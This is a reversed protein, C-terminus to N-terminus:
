TLLKQQQQQQQQQQQSQLYIFWPLKNSCQLYVLM